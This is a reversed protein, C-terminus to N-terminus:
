LMASQEWQWSHNWKFMPFWCLDYVYAELLLCSHCGNQSQSPCLIEQAAYQFQTIVQFSQYPSAWLDATKWLNCSCIRTMFFSLSSSTVELMLRVWHLVCVPWTKACIISLMVLSRNQVLWMHCIYVSCSAQPLVTLGQVRCLVVCCLISGCCSDFCLMKISLYPPRLM